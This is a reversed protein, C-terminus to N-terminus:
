TGTALLQREARKEYFDLDAKFSAPVTVQSWGAPDIHQGCTFQWANTGHRVYVFLDDNSLIGLRANRRKADFIFYADEALSLDRYRLGQEFLRKSFVLTGGHVDGVFMCRHVRPTCRWFRWRDLDFVVGMRLGCVDAEGALLPLVQRSLRDPAYWDDDDWQAIIQGKALECGLNRKTGITLGALVRKYQVNAMGRVDESLGQDGDDIIVLERALYDQREFYRLSQGVFMRRGGTVMVCSVLPRDATRGPM